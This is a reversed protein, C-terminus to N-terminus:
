KAEKFAAYAKEFTARASEVNADAKEDDSSMQSTLLQLQATHLEHDKLELDAVLSALLGALAIGIATQLSIKTNKVFGLVYSIIPTM